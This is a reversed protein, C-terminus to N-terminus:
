FKSEPEYDLGESSSSVGISLFNLTIDSYLYIFDYLFNIFGFALGFFFYFNIFFFFYDICNIEAVYFYSPTFDIYFPCLLLSM